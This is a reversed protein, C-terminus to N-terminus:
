HRRKFVLVWEMKAVPLTETTRFSGCDIERTLKSFVKIDRVFQDYPDPRLHTLRTYLPPLQFKSPLKACEFKMLYHLLVVLHFSANDYM